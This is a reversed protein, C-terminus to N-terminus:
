LYKDDWLNQLFEYWPLIEIKTSGVTTLLRKKPAMCVVVAHKPQYDECFSILGKIDSADVNTSIKVEVAM